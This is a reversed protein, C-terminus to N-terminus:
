QNEKSSEVPTSQPHDYRMMSRDRLERAVRTLIAHKGIMKADICRDIM